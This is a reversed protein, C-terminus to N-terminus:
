LNSENINKPQIIRFSIPVGKFADGEIVLHQTCRSLDLILLYKCDLFSLMEIIHLSGGFKAETICSAYFTYEPITEILTNSLDINKLHLMSSFCGKELIKLSNPFVVLKIHSRSFAFKGIRTLSTNSLILENLAYCGFFAEDGIESLSDPLSIKTISSNAFARKPIYTINTHNLSVERLYLNEFFVGEDIKNLTKPLTIKNISSQYFAHKEIVNLNTNILSISGLKLTHEFAQQRIINLENPFSIKVINSNYFARTPIEKIKTNSLDVSFLSNTFSFVNSQLISLCSPLKISNISCNAFCQMGLETVKTNSLDIDKLRKCGRFTNGGIYALTDPFLIYKIGTREFANSNITDICTKSLDIGELNFCGKFSHYGICNASKPLIVETLNNYIDSRDYIKEDNFLTIYRIGEEYIIRIKTSPSHSIISDRAKKLDAKDCYGNINKIRITKTRTKLYYLFDNSIFETQKPFHNQSEENIEKSASQITPLEIKTDKEEIKLIQHWLKLNNERIPNNGYIYKWVFEAEKFRKEQKLLTIKPRLYNVLYIRMDLDFKNATYQAKEFQKTKLYLLMLKFLARCIKQDLKQKKYNISNYESQVHKILTNLSESDNNNDINDINAELLDVYENLNNIDNSISTMNGYEIIPISTYKEIPAKSTFGSLYSELETLFKIAFYNVNSDKPNKEYMARYEYYKEYLKSKYENSDPIRQM